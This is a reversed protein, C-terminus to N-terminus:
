FEIGTEEEIAEKLVTLEYIMRSLESVECIAWNEKFITAGNISDGLNLYTNEKKAVMRDNIDKIKSDTFRM